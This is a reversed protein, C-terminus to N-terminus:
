RLTAQVTSRTGIDLFHIVNSLDAQFIFGRSQSTVSYGLSLAAQQMYPTLVSSMGFLQRGYADPIREARDPFVVPPSNTSSLHCNFLLVNGDDTYLSTLKRAQRTPDGDTSEGDTIHIVIPPFARRHRRIWGQILSQCRQLAACMPTDAGEVAEVWVPYSYSQGNITREQFRLPYMGIQSISVIEKGALDGGLSPAVHGKESGYGLVIVDFYERITTGESCRMVIDVLIGNVADALGQAKSNNGEKGGAPDKMSGSHDLLFCFLTPNERNIQAQYAM